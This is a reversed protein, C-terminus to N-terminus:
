EGEYVGFGLDENEEPPIVMDKVYEETGDPHILKVGEISDMVFRNHRLEAMEQENLAKPDFSAPWEPVNDYRHLRHGKRPIDAPAPEGPLQVRIVTKANVSHGDTGVSKNEPTEPHQEVAVVRLRGAIQGRYILFLFDGQDVHKVTRGFPFEARDQWVGNFFNAVWEPSEWQPVTRTINM